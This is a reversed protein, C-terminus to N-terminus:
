GRLGLVRAHSPFNVLRRGVLYQDDRINHHLRHLFGHVRRTLEVTILLGAAHLHVLRAAPQTDWAEIVGSWYVSAGLGACKGLGVVVCKSRAHLTMWAAHCLAYSVCPIAVTATVAGILPLLVATVMWRLNITDFGDHQLRRLAAAWEPPTPPTALGAMVLRYWLKLLLLGVVWLLFADSSPVGHSDLSRLPRLILVHVLLGLLLPVLVLWAAALVAVKAMTGVVAGVARVVELPPSRRLHDVVFRAGVSAAVVASWGVALTYVDNRVFGAADFIGRGLAVPGVMCSMTVLCLGALSSSALAAVRVPLSAALMMDSATGPGENSEVQARSDYVLIMGGPRTGHAQFRIELVPAPLSSHLLTRKLQPVCAHILEDERVLTGAGCHRVTMRTPPVCVLEAAWLTLSSVTDTWPLDLDASVGVKVFADVPAGHLESIHLTLVAVPNTQAATVDDLVDNDHVQVQGDDIMRDLGPAAAAELGGQPILFHSLRLKATIWRVWRHMLWKVVQKPKARELVLPAFIHLALQEIGMVEPFVFRLPFFGDPTVARALAVPAHVLLVVGTGYIATSFIIRRVHWFLWHQRVLELLPNYNPDTPDRIFALVEPRVVDRMVSICMAVTVIYLLGAAWHVATCFVPAVAHFALRQTATAEFLSLTNLDLWWGCLAPFVVLDFVLLVVVKVILLSHRLFRVTTHCGVGAASNAGNTNRGRRLVRLLTLVLLWLIGTAALAVYGLGLTAFDALPPPAM